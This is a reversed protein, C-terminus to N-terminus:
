VVCLADNLDRGIFVMKRYLYDAAFAGESNEVLDLKGLLKLPNKDRETGLVNRGNFKDDLLQSIYDNRNATIKPVNNVKMCNEHSIIWIEVTPRIWPDNDNYRNTKAIHVQITIFTISKNITNPNQHYRFLHTNILEDAEKPNTVDPSNIAYFLNEDNIIEKIIKDKIESVISSNAM